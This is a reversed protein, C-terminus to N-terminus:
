RLPSKRRWWRAGVAGALVGATNMLLDDVNFQRYACPYGGWLGTLQTLEVALSLGAGFVFVLRVSGVHRSLAAGIAACLLFNVATAALARNTLYALGSANEERMLWVNKMFNLPVLQPAATPVPCILSGPAPFPHQTLFIFSFTLVLFPLVHWGAFRGALRTAGLVLLSLVTGYLLALGAFSIVWAGM